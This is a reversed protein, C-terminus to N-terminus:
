LLGDLGALCSYAAAEGPSTAVLYFSMERGAGPALSKAPLNWAKGYQPSEGRWLTAGYKYRSALVLTRGQHTVCSWGDSFIEVEAEGLRRSHRQGDELWEFTDGIEARPFASIDLAAMMPATTGNELAFSAFVLNSGPLTLYRVVLGAGRISEAKEMIFKIEVGQWERGSGGCVSVIDAQFTEAALCGPYGFPDAPLHPHLGGYWPKFVGFEGTEPYPSRLLDCGEWLLQTLCAFFAPAVRFSLLGNDVIFSDGEETVTVQGGHGPDIVPLCHVSSRVNDTLTATIVGAQPRAEGNRLTVAIREEQEIIVNQIDAVEPDIQWGDPALLSLHADLPRNRLNRVVLTPGARHDDLLLPRRPASEGWSLRQIGGSIPHPDDPGAFFRRRYTRVTQWDGIGVYIMMLMPINNEGPAITVPRVVALGNAFIHEKAGAWMFGVTTRADSFSIWNEAWQDPNRPIDRDNAPFEGPCLREHVLGAEMPLSVTAGDMSSGVETRLNLELPQTGTYIYSHKIRVMQTDLELDRRWTLGPYRDSDMTIRLTGPAPFQAQFVRGEAEGPDFPPGLRDCDVWAAREDRKRDWIVFYGGRNRVRLIIDSNVLYAHEDRAFGVTSALVVPLPLSERPTIIEEGAMQISAWWHLYTLGETEAKLKLTLGSRERPGLSIPFPIPTGALELGNGPQLYLIGQLSIDAPNVVGLGVEIERGPVLVPCPPDTVLELPRRARLGTVLDASQGDLFFTSRILPAKAQEDVQAATPLAVVRGTRPNDGPYLITRLHGQIHEEGRAELPVPGACGRAEWTVDVPLGTAPRHQSVFCSIAVNGLSIATIGRAERDIVVELTEEEGRWRYTFSRMGKWSEDDPAVDPERDFTSYFDNDAFFRRALPHTMIQPLYNQMWVSSGPVWFFGTKKYLPVAELNAPWTNIDLRRYGATTIRKIAELLLDRALGRGQYRGHVFLLGVYAADPETVYPTLRLYGRPAGDVWALLVALNDDEEMNRLVTDATHPIGGTPDWPWIDVCDNKLAAVMKADASTFDTIMTKNEPM